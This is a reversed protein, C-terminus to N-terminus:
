DNARIVAGLPSVAVKQCRMERFKEPSRTTWGGGKKIDAKKRADQAGAYEIKGQSVSRVVAIERAGNGDDLEVLEGSSLSFVFKKGEGFDRAIVPEHAALRRSAEYRSVIIGEWRPKGNRLSELVAMHHNSDSTVHRCRGGDGVSFTELRRRIRVAHIPIRRGGRAELWPHNAADGFKKLDGGLDALRARVRERVVGDVIEDFEGASKFSEIKKRVHVCEKGQPDTTPKGYFTEEHLPGNVKRAVRHSVTIANIKGRVEEVFGPWPAQLDGFLRHRGAAAHAADALMKVRQADTLAIVVADVAHHRHDDRTKADGIDGLLGNLGWGSRLYATAGGKSGAVRLTGSNDSLGGYLLSVYRMAERTAYRTDNLQSSVFDDLSAIERLQFRRLKEQAAGSDFRSVRQLIEEWRAQNSGYAEFPTRNTKVNRNEEHYCLTKNVFSNDLSRSFLIIHEIDFEADAGFLASFSISRGTYPCVGKCEEWLLAKEIDQRSQAQKQIGTEALIREAARQRLRENQRNRKWSEERQKSTKRLDRALEIRIMEPKGHERVIGNVVKRLETLVRHVVPNRLHPMAQSVPPLQSLPETRRRAGYVEEVANMYFKGAELHPLLKAIAKRSLSAYGSELSLSVLKEAADPALKWFRRGRAGLAKDSQISLLDEVVQDKQAPPLDQWRAGFIKALAANTHNGSFKEEGGEELTFVHGRGLKLLKRAQGFTMNGANELRDILAGRQEATLSVLEGDPTIVQTNNVQQLLRFRQFAMLAKAARQRKPEFECVGILSKVSKLPRQYFIARRLSKQFQESLCDHHPAQASCIRDFEDLFMDRATWRRRIREEEPNIGAFYEGLTRASAAAM